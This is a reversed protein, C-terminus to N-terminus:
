LSNIQTDRLDRLDACISGIHLEVPFTRKM